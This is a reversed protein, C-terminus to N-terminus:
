GKEQWKFSISPREPGTAKGQFQLCYEDPFMKPLTLHYAFTAKLVLCM